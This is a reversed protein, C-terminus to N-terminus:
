SEVLRGPRSTASRGDRAAGDDETLHRGREAPSLIVRGVGGGRANSQHRAASPTHGLACKEEEGARAVNRRPRANHAADIAAATMVETRRWEGQADPGPSSVEGSRIMPDSTATM